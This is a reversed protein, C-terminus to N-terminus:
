NFSRSQASKHPKLAVIGITDPLKGAGSEAVREIQLGAKLIINFIDELPRNWAGVRSRVPSTFHSPELYHSKRYGPQVVVSGDDLTKAYGGNFCPHTAIEVYRGGPELVRAIENIVEQLDDYETSTYTTYVLPISGSAIPLYTADAQIVPLRNAALRLQDPSLDIGIPDYGLTRLEESVAGTGCGIDLAVGSGPGVLEALLTNSSARLDGREAASNMAAEYWDALGDYRSVRDTEGIM